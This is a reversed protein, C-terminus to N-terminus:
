LHLKLTFMFDMLCTIRVHVYFWNLLGNWQEHDKVTVRLNLMIKYVMMIKM